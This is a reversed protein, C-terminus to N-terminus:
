EAAHTEILQLLEEIDADSLKGDKFFLVTNDADVLIVASSKTELGWAELALGKSDVVHFAYPAGEQSTELRGVAIGKTGWLADNTNLITTTKYPSDPMHEPVKAAILADIYPQNIEDSGTRAALHYITKVKGDMASTDFTEYGIKAGERFVMVDDVIDYDFVMQGQDEIVVPPLKEGVVISGALAFPASICLALMATIRHKM